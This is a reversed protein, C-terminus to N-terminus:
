PKEGPNELACQRLSDIDNRFYTFTSDNSQHGLVGAITSLPIGESLMNTALTRRLSHLGKGKGNPPTIRAIRICRQVIHYFCNRDHVKSYPPIHRVFIYPSDTNPRGNKLYDIVAWGIEKLLPFTIIQGTKSQIFEITNTTWHLNKLKLSRIDSSRIGLTSVLLLIAYDRKGCPNGRDIANLLKLVDERSWVAPLNMEKRNQQKPLESTFDNAIFQCQYLFSLLTRVRSLILGVSRYSYETLSNIFNIVSENQISNCSHVGHHELFSFFIITNNRLGMRTSSAYGHDLCWIGYEDIVDIFEETFLHKQAVGNLRRIKKTEAFYILKRVMQRVSLENRTLSREQSIETLNYRKELFDLAVKESFFDEGQKEFFRKIQNFFIRYNKLTNASYGLIRLKEQFEIVLESVKIEHM